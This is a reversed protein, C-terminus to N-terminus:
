FLLLPKETLICFFHVTIFLASEAHRSLEVRQPSESLLYPYEVFVFEDAYQRVTSNTNTPLLCHLPKRLPFREM